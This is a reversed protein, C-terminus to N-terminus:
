TIKGKALKRLTRDGDKAAQALALRSPETGIAALADVSSQKLALNRARAFWRKQRMVGDISRIATDTHVVKM